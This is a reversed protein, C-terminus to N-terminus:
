LGYFYKELIKIAQKKNSTKSSIQIQKKDIFTRVYWNESKKIKVNTSTFDEM